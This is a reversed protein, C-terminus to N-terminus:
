SAGLAMRVLGREQRRTPQASSYAAAHHHDCYTREAPLCCFRMESGDHGPLPWRCGRFGPDCIRHGDKREADPSPPPSKPRTMRSVKAPPRKRIYPSAIKPTPPPRKLGARWLKGMVANRTKDLKAAIQRGTLGEAWLTKALAIEEPTWTTEGM